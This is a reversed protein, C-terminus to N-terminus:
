EYWRRGEVWYASAKPYIFYAVDIHVGWDYKGRRLDPYNDEILEVLYLVEDEDCSLDLALGWMHASLASGRSFANHMPCRYGSSVYIPKGWRERIDDFANFLVQFPFAIDDKDFSPPYNDCHRCRYEHEYLYKSLKESM